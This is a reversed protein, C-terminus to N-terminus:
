PSINDDKPNDKKGLIPAKEEYWRFILEEIGKPVPFHNNLLETALRARENSAQPLIALQAFETSSFVSLFIEDPEIPDNSPHPSLASALRDEFMLILGKNRVRNVKEIDSDHIDFQRDRFWSYFEMVKTRYEKAIKLVDLQDPAQDLYEKASKTWSKFTLLDSKLIHAVRTPPKQLDHYTETMSIDPARYHQCYIRLCKVFESLPDDIFEGDIKEQYDPFLSRPEYLKQYQRRTHDILSLSSAVFNHVHRLIHQLGLYLQDRNRLFYLQEAEHGETIANIFRELEFFNENFIFISQNLSNIEGILLTEPMSQLEEM